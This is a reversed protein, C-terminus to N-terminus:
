SKGGELRAVKERLDRNEKQLLESDHRMREYNAQIHNYDNQMREIRAEFEKRLSELAFNYAEYASKDAENERKRKGNAYGILGTAISSVLGIVSLIIESEM